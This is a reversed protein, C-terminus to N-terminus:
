VPSRMNVLPNCPASEKMPGRCWAGRGRGYTSIQRSRERMGDCSGSCQGWETWPQFECDREPVCPTSVICIRTESSLGEPFKGCDSAPRAIGRTRFTTGRSCSVSCTSWDTWQAWLGDLCSGQLRCQMTNCPEIIEKLEPECQRGTKSPVTLIHRVKTRVGGDCSRSCYSWMSWGGWACDRQVCENGSVCAEVEGLIDYCGHGDADRQNVISRSRTRQGSGCTVSCFGWGGWESVKCDLGGCSNTNCGQTEILTTPCPSGGEKPFRHIERHRHMQGGDCTKDCADWRTWASVVCDVRHSDCTSTEQLGGGCAGGFVSPLQLITRARHKQGDLGCHTWEEWSSMACDQKGVDRCTPDSGLCVTVEYTAGVCEKGGYKSPLDVERHRSQWGKVCKTSCISWSSWAELQCDRPIQPCAKTEGLHATCSEGGNMPMEVIERMRNDQSSGDGCGEWASWDSIKCDQKPQCVMPCQKTEVTPGSCGEGCKNNMQFIVRHRECLGLCTPSHWESWADFVCKVPTCTVCLDSPPCMSVNLQTGACATDENARFLHPGFDQTLGMARNRTMSVDGCSKCSESLSWSTWSCFLPTDCSSFCSGAEKADNPECLRGCHNPMKQITRYRFRQGGCKSCSGWSGWEGWLCDQCSSTPCKDTACPLLEALNAACPTGGNASPLKIDRKRETQGGGCTATCSSWETWQDIVCDTTRKRDGCEVRSVEGLGPNCPIIEKITGNCPRGTASSFQAIARNRESIGFCHCSCQSWDGWSAMVCDQEFQCPQLDVCTQFEERLGVAPKGCASPQVAVDRRRSKYATDCTASCETWMGWGGWLGNLCAEDCSMINCPSLMSKALADCLRGGHQPSTLVVRERRKTGGDCSQSCVTWSDWDGWKCDVVECNQMVCPKVHQTAGECPVGERIAHVAVKRIRDQTGKGCLASCESWQEWQGFVCDDAGPEACARQGCPEVSNLVAEHCYGGETNLTVLKRERTMQGGGCTKTCPTWQAWQGIDCDQGATSPAYCAVTEILMSDCARGGNSPTKIITRRRYRQPELVDCDSWSSWGSLQCDEKPCEGAHCSETEKAPGSCLSGGPDGQTAIYRMRTFRGEGCSVSCGTWANWLSWLCARPVQGACAKTEIMPGHCPDGDPGAPQLITRTRMSQDQSTICHSWSNWDSFKCDLRDDNCTYGAPQKAAEVTPGRCPEGCENNHSKVARRRYRLGTCGGETFWEAWDSFECDRAVCPGFCHPLNPCKGWDEDYGECERLFGIEEKAELERAVSKQFEPVASVVSALLLAVQRHKSQILHVLCSDATKRHLEPSRPAERPKASAALCFRRSEPAKPHAGVRQAHRLQCRGVPVCAVTPPHLRPQCDLMAKVALGGVNYCHEHVAQRGLLIIGSGSGAKIRASPLASDTGASLVPAPQKPASSSSSSIGGGTQEATEPPPCNLSRGCIGCRWGQPSVRAGRKHTEIFAKKQGTMERASIQSCSEHLNASLKLSDLVRQVSTAIRSVPTGPPLRRVVHAPTAIPPPQPRGSDQGVQGYRGELSDLRDLLPVLLQPHELVFSVLTEWLAPDQTESAFEVARGVDGVEELLIRLAEGVRGARGLLYAEEERLGRQQCVGLADELPYRESARLFALLGSPEYEAFLRVMQMHYGQGAVEDQVFLQKLYKHRWCNECGVSLASVVADVSLVARCEVLLECAKQDDIEFLRRLSAEAVAALAPVAVAASTALNRRLLKFVEPSGLDLLLRAALEPDEGGAALLALAEARCRDDQSLEDVKLGQLEPLSRRLEDQLAGVSFIDTPWWSLVAVLASPSTVLRSLAQDYVETPLTRSRPPVPLNVALHQLGGFRDFLVILEQWTPAELNQFRELVSCAREYSGDKLDPVVCKLCVIHRLGEVGEGAGNALRVAEDHCGEDLLQVAYEMLDRIQFVQYSRNTVIRDGPALNEYQFHFQIECVGATGLSGSWRNQLSNISIGNMQFGDDCAVQMSVQALKAHELSEQLRCM